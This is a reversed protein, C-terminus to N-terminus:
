FYTHNMKIILRKVTVPNRVMRMGSSSKSSCKNVLNRTPTFAGEASGFIIENYCNRFYGFAHQLRFLWHCVLFMLYKWLYWQPWYGKFPITLIVMYFNSFTEPLHLFAFLNIHWSWLQTFLIQMDVFFLLYYSSLQM